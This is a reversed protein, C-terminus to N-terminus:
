LQLASETGKIMTLSLYIFTAIRMQSIFYSLDSLKLLKGFIVNNYTLTWPESSKAKRCTNNTEINLGSSTLKM